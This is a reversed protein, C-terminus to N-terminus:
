HPIPLSELSDLEAIFKLVDFVSWDKAEEQDIEAAKNRKLRPAEILHEGKTLEDYFITLRPITALLKKLQLYSVRPKFLRM